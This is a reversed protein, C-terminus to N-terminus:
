FELGPAKLSPDPKCQRVVAEIFKVLYDLVGGSVAEGAVAAGPHVVDHAAVLALAASAVALPATATSSKVKKSMVMAFANEDIAGARRRSAAARTTGSARGSTSCMSSSGKGTTTCGCRIAQHAVAACTSGRRAATLPAAPSSPILAAATYAAM